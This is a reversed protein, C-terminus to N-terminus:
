KSCMRNSILNVRTPLKSSQCKSQSGIRSDIQNRIKPVDDSRLEDVRKFNIKKGRRMWCWKQLSNAKRATKIIVRKDRGGTCCWFSLPSQLAVGALPASGASSSSFFVRLTPLRLPVPLDRRSWLYTCFFCTAMNNGGNVRSRAWNWQKLDIKIESQTESQANFCFSENAHSGDTSHFLPVDPFWTIIKLVQGGLIWTTERRERIFTCICKDSRKCQFSVRMLENMVENLM